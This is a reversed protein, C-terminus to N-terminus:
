SAPSEGPEIGAAETYAQIFAIKQRVSMGRIAAGTKDDGEDALGALADGLAALSDVNSADIGQLSSLAVIKSEPLDLLTPVSYTSKEGPLEFVFRETDPVKFTTM